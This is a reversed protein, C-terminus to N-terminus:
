SPVELSEFARCIGPVAEGPIEPLLTSPYPVDGSLVLSFSERKLEGSELAAKWAHVMSGPSFTMLIDLISPISSFINRITEVQVSSNLFMGTYRQITKKDAGEGELDRLKGELGARYERVMEKVQTDTLQSVQLQFIRM